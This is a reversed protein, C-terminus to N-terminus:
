HRKPISVKVSSWNGEITNTHVANLSNLFSIIHNVVYHYYGELHLTNYARWGDSYIMSQKKIYKNILGFLTARDRKEVLLHLIKRQPTKEVIGFVKVGEVHHRKNFSKKCIQIRKNRCYYKRRRIEFSQM